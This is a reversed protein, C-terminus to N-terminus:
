VIMNHRLFLCVFLQISSLFSLLPSIVSLCFSSFLSSSAYYYAVIYSVLPRALQSLYFRTTYCFFPYKRSSSSSLGLFFHMPTPFQISLIIPLFPPHITTTTTVERNFLWQRTTTCEKNAPYALPPLFALLPLFSLM